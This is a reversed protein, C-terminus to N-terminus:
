GKKAIERAETKEIIRIVHLYAANSIDTYESTDGEAIEAKIRRKLEKLERMEVM